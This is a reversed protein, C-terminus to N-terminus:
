ELGLTFETSWAIRGSVRNCRHAASLDAAGMARLGVGDEAPLINRAALSLIKEASTRTSGASNVM